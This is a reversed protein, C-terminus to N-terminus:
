EIVEGETLLQLKESLEANEAELENIRQRDSESQSLALNLREQLEENQAELTAITLAKSAINIALKSQIQENM